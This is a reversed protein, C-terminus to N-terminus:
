GSSEISDHQESKVYYNKGGLLGKWKKLGTGSGNEEYQETRKEKNKTIKGAKERRGTTHKSKSRFIYGYQNNWSHGNGYNARQNQQNWQIKRKNPTTKTGKPLQNKEIKKKKM